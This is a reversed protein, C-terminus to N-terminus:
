EAAGGVVALVINLTTLLFIVPVAWKPTVEKKRYTYAIFFIVTLSITKLSIVVANLKAPDSVGAMVLGTILMTYAGHLVGINVKMGTKMEKMSTFFGALLAAIGLIHLVLFINIILERTSDEM